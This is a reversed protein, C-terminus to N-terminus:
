ALDAKAIVQRRGDEQRRASILSLSSVRLLDGQNLKTGRRRRVHPRYESSVHPTKVAWRAGIQRFWDLAVRHIRELEKTYEILSVPVGKKPGFMIESAVKADFSELNAFKSYFDEALQRRETKLVFWPIVTIHLLGPQFTAGVPLDDLLFALWYRHKDISNVNM